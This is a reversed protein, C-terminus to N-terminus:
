MRRRSLAEQTGVTRIFVVGPTVSEAIRIFTEELTRAQRFGPGQGGAPSVGAALPFLAIWVFVCVRTFAGHLSPGRVM